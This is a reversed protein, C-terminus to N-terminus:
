KKLPIRDCADDVMDKLYSRKMGKKRLAVIENYCPLLVDNPLIIPLM